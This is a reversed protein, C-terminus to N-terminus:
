VLGALESRRSECGVGIAAASIDLMTVQYGGAALDLALNSAGSGVDLVRGPQAWETILRVSTDLHERFWSVGDAPKTSYVEDWFQPTSMM